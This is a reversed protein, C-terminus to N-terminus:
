QVLDKGLVARTRAIYAAGDFGVESARKIWGDFVPQTYKPDNVRDRESKPAVWFTVGKDRMEAMVKGVFVNYEYLAERQINKMEARVKAQLDAPIKAWEDKNIMIAWGNIAGLSWNQVNPAGRWYEQGHGYCTSTFLGDIVGRDLAPMVESLALPVPKAGLASMLEATQPNHVRLRKNKFDELTRIPEKSFLQQVCWAGTALVVSNWKELWIQELDACWFAECVYAFEAMNEILGPLNFLGMRPEEAALYTHVTASMQVRGDRVAPALQPGGILSDNLTIKVKGDTAKAIRDPIALTFHRYTTSPAALAALTLDIEQAKLTNPALLLGAFMLGIAALPKM